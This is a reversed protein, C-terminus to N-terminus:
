WNRDNSFPLFFRIQLFTKVPPPKIQASRIFQQNKLGPREHLMGEPFVHGIFGGLFSGLLAGVVIVLVGTVISKGEM